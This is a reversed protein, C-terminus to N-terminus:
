KESETERNRGTEKERERKRKSEGERERERQRQRNRERERVRRKERKRERKTTSIEKNSCIGVVATALLQVVSDNAHWVIFQNYCQGLHAPSYFWFTKRLVKKRSAIM